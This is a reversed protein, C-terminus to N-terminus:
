TKTKFKGLVGIPGLKETKNDDGYDFQQKNIKVNGEKIGEVIVTSPGVNGYGQPQRLLKGGQNLLYYRYNRNNNMMQKFLKEDQPTFESLGIDHNDYPHNHIFGVATVGEPLWDDYKDPGPSIETNTKGQESRYGDPFFGPTTFSYYSKGDIKWTFIMSSMEKKNIDLIKGSNRSNHVYAAWGLAAQDSSEYVKTLWELPLNGNNIEKEFHSVSVMFTAIENQDSTTYGNADESWMGDPDIFRIPNNV